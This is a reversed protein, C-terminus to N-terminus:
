WPDCSPIKGGGDGWGEAHGREVWVHVQESTKRKDEQGGEAGAAMELCYLIAPRM